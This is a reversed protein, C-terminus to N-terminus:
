HLAVQKFKEYMYFFFTQTKLFVQEELLVLQQLLLIFLQVQEVLPLVVPLLVQEM